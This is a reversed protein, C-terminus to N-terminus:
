AEWHGLIAGPDWSALIFGGLMGFFLSPHGFQWFGCSFQEWPWEFGHFFSGPTMLIGGEAFPSKQLVEKAFDRNELGPCGPELLFFILFLLRSVSMVFYVNTTGLNGLCKWFPIGLDVFFSIYIWAQVEFRGKRQQGIDWSQGLTGWSALTSAGPIGFPLNPCLLYLIRKCIYLYVAIKFCHAITLPRRCLAYGM